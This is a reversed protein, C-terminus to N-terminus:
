IYYCRFEQTMGLEAMKECVARPNGTYSRGLSSMFVVTRRSVPLVHALVHYCALVLGKVARKAVSM